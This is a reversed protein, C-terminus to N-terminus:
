LCEGLDCKNNGNSDTYRHCRGPFSCGNRCRVTCTTNSAAQAVTPQSTATPELTATPQAEVRQTSQQETAQPTATPDASATTQDTSDSGTNAQTSSGADGKVVHTIALTSVLTFAGLMALFDRRTLAKTSSVTATALAPQSTPRSAPVQPRQQRAFVRRIQLGIMKWHLVLKVLLAVLTEVSFAIHLVRWTDYNYLSLNFWSSIVLGSLIISIMGLAIAADVMFNIQTRAPMQSYRALTTKVWAGHQFLHVLCCVGIGVGLWQHLPLGTLDLYFLLLFGLYLILNLIWKLNQKKM